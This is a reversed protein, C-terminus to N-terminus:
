STQPEHSSLDEPPDAPPQSPLRVEFRAGGGPRELCHIHGRHAVVTHQALALGIGTGPRARDRVDRGQRFPQFVAERLEEPVGPGEDDVRLVAGNPDTVLSVWISGGEPTHRVANDLLISLLRRLRTFDGQVHAWPTIDLHLHHSNLETQGAEQRVLMSLDVDELDLTATEDALRAVESMDELKRYLGEAQATLRQLLIRHDEGTPDLRGSQLLQAVGIVTTLPTRLEHSMSQLFSQQMEVTERLHTAARREYQLARDRARDGEVRASIDFMMGQLANVTGFRDKHPVYHDEIWVHTGDPREFRYVARGPEARRPDTEMSREISRADESRVRRKLLDPDALFEERRFGTMREIAPNIYELAVDPQLRMWYVVGHVGEALTRFRREYSALTEAQQNVDLVLIRAFAAAGGAAALLVLLRPLLKPAPDYVAPALMAIAAGTVDMAFWATFRVMSEYVMVIFFLAVFPSDGGGTAAVIWAILVAVALGGIRQRIPYWRPWEWYTFLILGAVAPSVTIWLSVHPQWAYMLVGLVVAAIIGAVRARAGGVDLDIPM